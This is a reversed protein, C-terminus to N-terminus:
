TSGRVILEPELVVSKCIANEKKKSEILEILLEAGREGIEASSQRITTLPVELMSAYRIDDYGILAVDEPISCEMERIAKMAGIALNDNYAFVGVPGPGKQALVTKMEEYSANMSLPIHHMVLKMEGFEHMEDIAKRCGEIRQNVTYLNKPGALYHVTRLGREHLHKVALYAGRVSDSVVYNVNESKEPVRNIIVYPMGIDDLFQITQEDATVPTILVGDVRRSRLLTLAEIENNRDESTNCLMLNYEHTRAIDEVVRILEGYFPNAINTVVVGIVNTKDSKLGQALQNPTYHMEKAIRLIREKTNQNVDAKGNLARSVTNISVGAVRAVDKITVKM